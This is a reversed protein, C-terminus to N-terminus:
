RVRLSDSEYTVGLPRLVVRRPGAEVTGAALLTVGRGAAIAQARPAAAPPLFYAFGAGMNFTGYAEADDLAAQSQLFALVPPVPPLRDVVYTLPQAARMLKRWGHGTVHVAYHLPVGGDQLAETLPGYLPAPDLLVEGYPRRAPDGPVPTGFGEPLRAAIQRALTLGNAHIGTAPALLIADGPTVRTGLLLRERPRVVGVAAGALAAADPLVVGAIAQTEGGGWAAGAEACAAAWGDVLAAMRAADAFWASAGAAWYASVVLPAAGVTALDNLITAVTDRAILDYRSWGTLGAMADAVLSKTGLGETLSALYHDGADVVYASEGRTGPVESVGHRALLPATAAAAEQARRKGPDLLDYDVGAGAYADPM